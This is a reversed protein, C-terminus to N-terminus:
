VVDRRVQQKQRFGVDGDGIRQVRQFVISDGRPGQVPHHPKAIATLDATSEPYQKTAGITDIYATSITTEYSTLNTAVITGVVTSGITTHIASEIATCIAAWHSFCDATYEAARQTSEFAPQIAACDTPWQSM